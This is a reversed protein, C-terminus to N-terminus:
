VFLRGANLVGAPDFQGKIGQAVRVDAREPGWVNIDRKWDASGGEIMWTSAGLATIAAPDVSAEDLSFMASGTALSVKLSAIALNEGVSRVQALLSEVSGGISLVPASGSQADTEWWSAGEAGDDAAGISEEARALYDTVSVDRGQFRIRTAFPSGEGVTEIATATPFQKMLATQRTLAATISDDRWELSADRRPLPTVKLNVRTLVALSGWSGHLMRPIEFGSVNKVTMGGAKAMLGDGRVYECGILGDKLSGKGLRSAGAYGTAVLGGITGQDIDAIDIPLEQGNEALARKVESLTTGAQFSATMDTPIYNDIGSLSTLDLALFEHDPVNGTGLSVGGGVPLVPRGSQSADALVESLHEPSEIRITEAIRLGNTQEM